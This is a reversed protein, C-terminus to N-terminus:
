RRSRRKLQESRSLLEYPIEDEERSMQQAGVGLEPSSMKKGGRRAMEMELEKQAEAAERALAEKEIARDRAARVRERDVRRQALRKEKEREKDTQVAEEVLTAMIEEMTLPTERPAAAQAAVEEEEATKEKEPPPIPAHISHLLLRRALKEDPTLEALAKMEKEVSIAQVTGVRHRYFARFQAYEEHDAVQARLSAEQSALRELRRSQAPPLM